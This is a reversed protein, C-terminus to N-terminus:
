SQESDGRRVVRRLASLETEVADLRSRLDAVGAAVEGALRQHLHYFKALEDQQTLRQDTAAMAQAEIEMLRADIQDLRSVEGSDDQTVAVPDAGDLIRDISDQTWELADCLAWRTQERPTVVDGDGNLLTRLHKDSLGSRRALEAISLRLEAMRDHIRDRAVSWTLRRHNTMM